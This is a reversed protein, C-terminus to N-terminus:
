LIQINRSRNEVFFTARSYYNPISWLYSFYKSKNFFLSFLLTNNYFGSNYLRGQASKYRNSLHKESKKKMWQDVDPYFSDQLFIIFVFRRFDFFRNKRDCERADIPWCPFCKDIRIFNYLIILQNKVFKAKQM